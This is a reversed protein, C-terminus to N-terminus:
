EALIFDYDKIKVATEWATYMGRNWFLNGNGEVINVQPYQMKVAKPTGDTCGDDTLYVDIQFGKPIEQTFLDQLCHLTKEKRNHVTLLVAISRM